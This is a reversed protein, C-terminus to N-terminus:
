KEVAFKIRKSESSAKVVAIYVGSSLKQWPIDVIDRNRLYARAMGKQSHIM